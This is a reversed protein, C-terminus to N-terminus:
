HLKEADNYIKFIKNKFADISDTKGILYPGWIECNYLLIPLMMSSFLKTLTKVPTKEINSFSKFLGHYVRLAKSHLVRLIQKYSGSFHINIGLYTYDEVQELVNNDFFWKSTLFTRRQTATGLVMIKSKKYNIKLKWRKTYLNLKTLCKQLGSESESLLVLDDAYLLCNLNTEGLKVPACSNTFLSPIDNVFINFLTPSLNCGQKVGIHSKFFPTIGNHLKVSTVVSSYMRLLIRMFNKSCGNSILKFFLGERWVSDYAKRFDVFCAFIPKRKVKYIEMLTKLVLLYDATRCDKRFGIQCRSLIKHQELYHNLRENMILTFFKGLCSSICIGRYNNPDDTSGTKYIPVIFEKSWSAPFVGKSLIVNFLKVFYSPLVTVSLKIIENSLPDSGCAKGNKM